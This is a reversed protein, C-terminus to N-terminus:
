TLSSKSVLLNGQAQVVDEVCPRPMESVAKVTCGGGWFFGGVMEWPTTAEMKSDVDPDPIIM